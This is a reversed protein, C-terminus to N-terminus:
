VQLSPSPVPALKTLKAIQDLPLLTLEWKGAPAGVSVTIDAQVPTFCLMEIELKGPGDPLDAFTFMGSQDSVTSLKKTGQTVTVTAGPLPLGGFTILGHYESALAPRAFAMVWFILVLYFLRAIRGLMKRWGM